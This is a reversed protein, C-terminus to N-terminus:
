SYFFLFSSFFLFFFFFFRMDMTLVGGFTGVSHATDVGDSFSEGSVAYFGPLALSVIVVPELWMGINILL